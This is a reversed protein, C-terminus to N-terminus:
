KTKRGLLSRRKTSKSGKESKSKAGKDVEELVKTDEEPEQDPVDEEVTFKKDVWPELSAKCLAYDEDSLYLPETHACNLSLKRDGVSIIHIGKGEPLPTIKVM